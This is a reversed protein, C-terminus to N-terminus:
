ASWTARRRAVAAVAGVFLLLTLTAPEPIVFRGRDCYSGLGPQAEACAAVFIPLGQPDFGAPAIVVDGESLGFGIRGSFIGSGGTVIWQFVSHSVGSSNPPMLVNTWTGFFDNNAPSTDDFLFTGAGEFFLVQGHLTVSWQGPISDPTDNAIGTADIINCLPPAPFQPPCVSPITSGVQEYDFVIGAVAPSAILAAAFAVVLFRTM